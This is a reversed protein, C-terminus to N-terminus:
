VTRKVAQNSGAGVGTTEFILRASFDTSALKVRGENLYSEIYKFAEHIPCLVSKYASLYVIVDDTSVYRQILNEVLESDLKGNRILHVYGDANPVDGGYFLKTM